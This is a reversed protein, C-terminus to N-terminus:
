MFLADYYEKENINSKLIKIENLDQEPNKQEIQPPQPPQPPQPHPQPQPQKQEIQSHKQEIQQHKKTGLDLSAFKNMKENYENDEFAKTNDDIIMDLKSVSKNLKDMLEDKHEEKPEDNDDFFNINHKNEIQDEDILLKRVKNEKTEETQIVYDNKLYETIIDNLPLVKILAEKIAEKIISISERKNKQQDITPFQHWFLEPNLFINKASEVYVKHIFDKINIKDHFKENVLKCEKDSANYTLLVIYSKFTARILKEFIDAHKSSDRIRIYEAEILQSNLTQVNKLFHQFIKLVGPNENISGQLVAQETEKDVEIAKDYMSKIGEYVLPAMINILFITYETKIEVINREYYHM